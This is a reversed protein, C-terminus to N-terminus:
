ALSVQLVLMVDAVAAVERDQRSECLTSQVPGVGDVGSVPVSDLFPV